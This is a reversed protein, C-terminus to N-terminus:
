DTMAPSTRAMWTKGQARLVHIGAVYALSAVGNKLRSLAPMVYLFIAIATISRSARSISRASNTPNVNRITDWAPCM